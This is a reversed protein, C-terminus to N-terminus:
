NAVRARSEWYDSVVRFAAAAREFSDFVVLGRQRALEKGHAVAAELHAPHM